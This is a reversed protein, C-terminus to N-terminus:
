SIANIKTHGEVRVSNFDAHKPLPGTLWWNIKWKLKGLDNQNDQFIKAQKAFWDQSFPHTGLEFSCCLLVTSHLATASASCKGNHGQEWSTQQKGGQLVGLPYAARLGRLGQGRGHHRHRSRAQGRLAEHIRGHGSGVVSTLGAPTLAPVAGVLTLLGPFECKQSM